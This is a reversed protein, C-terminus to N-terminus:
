KFLSLQDELQFHLYVDGTINTLCIDVLFIAFRYEMLKADLRNKPM